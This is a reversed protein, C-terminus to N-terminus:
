ASLDFRERLWRAVGDDDHHDIVADATAKLADIANIPAYSEDAIEFMSLDNTSDGFAIVQTAGLQTKLIEVAGGKSAASSHVDLWKMTDDDFAEGCYAVLHPHEIMRGVIMDVGAAKGIASINIIVADHPLASAPRIAVDDRRFWVDVLRSEVDNQLPTHYIAHRDDSELTFIFPTMGQTLIAELIRKIEPLSLHNGRHYANTSPDWILVGNKYAQPLDFRHGTLVDISAHHSRGTAVTYAIGRRSLMALTERTYASIGHQANLLTGDLDFVVLEMHQLGNKPIAM